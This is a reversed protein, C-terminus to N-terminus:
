AMITYGHKTLCTQRIGWSDAYKRLLKRGKDHEGRATKVEKDAARIRNKLEENEKRISDGEEAKRRLEGNEKLLYDMRAQLDLIDQPTPRAKIRDLMDDPEADLYQSISNILKEMAQYQKKVVKYSQVVSNFPKLVWPTEEQEPQQSEPQQPEPRHPEPQEPHPRESPPSM